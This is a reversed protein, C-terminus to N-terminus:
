LGVYAVVGIGVLVLAAITNANREFWTSAIQYGLMTALLTLGVFTSLTVAAFAVLVAVVAGGGYASAALGVPLITLDPSAAVGFPVAIAAM